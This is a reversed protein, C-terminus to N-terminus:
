CTSRPPAVRRRFPTKLHAVDGLHGGREQAPRRATSCTSPPDSVTVMTGHEGTQKNKGTAAPTVAAHNTSPAPELAPAAAPCPWPCPRASCHVHRTGAAADGRRRTKRSTRRRAGRDTQKRRRMGRGQGRAGPGEGGPGKRSTRRRAGIGTKKGEDGGEGQTGTDRHRDTQTCPSSLRAAAPRAEAAGPGPSCSHATDEGLM